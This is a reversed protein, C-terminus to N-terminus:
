KVEMQQVKQVEALVDPYWRQAVDAHKLVRSSFVGYGACSQFIEQFFKEADSKVKEDKVLDEIHQPIQLSMQDRTLDLGLLQLLPFTMRPGLSHGYADVYHEPRLCVRHTAATCVGGTLAELIRGVNIVLTNRMPPVSIWEGSKNQAELGPQETGQYLFTLVSSDKHPGNGQLISEEAVDSSPPDYKNLKLRDHCEADFFKLLATPELDLAEAILVKFQDALRCVEDFYREVAPRFGPVIGESPWQLCDVIDAEFNMNGPTIWMYFTVVSRISV